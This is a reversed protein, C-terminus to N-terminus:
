SNYGKYLRQAFNGRSNILGNKTMLKKRDLKMFFNKLSFDNFPEYEQYIATKCDLM